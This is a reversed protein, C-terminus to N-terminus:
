VHDVNRRTSTLMKSLRLHKEGVNRIKRIRGCDTENQSKKKSGIEADQVAGPNFEEIQDMWKETISSAERNSYGSERRIILFVTTRCIQQNTL